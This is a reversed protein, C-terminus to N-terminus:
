VVIWSPLTSDASSCFTYATAPLSAAIQFRGGAYWTAAGNPASMPPAVGAKKAIAFLAAKPKASYSEHSVMPTVSPVNSCFPALM